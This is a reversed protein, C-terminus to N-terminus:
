NSAEAGELHLLNLLENPHGKDDYNSLCLTAPAPRYPHDPLDSQIAQKHRHQLVLPPGEPLVDLVTYPEGAYDVRYGILGFLYDLDRYRDKDFPTLDFVETGLCRPSGIGSGAIRSPPARPLDGSKGARRAKVPFAHGTSYLWM